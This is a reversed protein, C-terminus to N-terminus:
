QYFFLFLLVLLLASGFFISQENLSDNKILQRPLLQILSAILIYIALLRGWFNSNLCGMTLRKYDGHRHTIMDVPQRFLTSKEVDFTDGENLGINKYQWSEPVQFEDGSVAKIYDTSHGHYRYGNNDISYRRDYIERVRTLPLLFTDAALILLIALNIVALTRHLTFYTM